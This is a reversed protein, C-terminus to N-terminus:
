CFLSLISHKIDCIVLFRRGDFGVELFSAALSFENLGGIMSYVGSLVGDLSELVVEDTPEAGGIAFPLDLKPVLEGFM